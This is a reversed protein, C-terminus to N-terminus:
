INNKFPTNKEVPVVYDASEKHVLIPTHGRHWVFLRTKVIRLVAEM